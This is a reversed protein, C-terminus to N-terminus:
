CMGLCLGPYLVFSVLVMMTPMGLILTLSLCCGHHIPQELLLFITIHKFQIYLHIEEKQLGHPKTLNPLYRFNSIHQSSPVATCDTNLLEISNGNSLKTFKAFFKRAM